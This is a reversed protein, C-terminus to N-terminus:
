AMLTPPRERNAVDGRSVSAVEDNRVRLVINAGNRFVLWDHDEVRHTAAKVTQTSGDKYDIKWEPAVLPKRETTLQVRQTIEAIYNVRYSHM